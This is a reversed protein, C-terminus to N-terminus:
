FRSITIPRAFLGGYSRSAASRASSSCCHQEETRCGKGASESSSMDSCSPTESLDNWTGGGDSFVDFHLRTEGGGADNPEASAWNTYAWPEGTVWNWAGDPEDVPGAPTQIGGLWHGNSVASPFEGAIFDNEEQSTITALHWGGGLALTAANAGDWTIPFTTTVIDYEHGNFM